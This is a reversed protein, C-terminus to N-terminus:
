PRPGLRGPDSPAAVWSVAGGWGGQEAAVVRRPRGTCMRRGGLGFYGVQFGGFRCWAWGPLIRCFRLRIRSRGGAGFVRGVRALGGRTGCRWGFWMGSVVNLLTYGWLVCLDVGLVGRVVFFSGGNSILLNVKSPESLRKAALKVGGRISWTSNYKRACRGDLVSGAVGGHRRGFIEFVGIGGM